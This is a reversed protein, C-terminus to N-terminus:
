HTIEAILRIRKAVGDKNIYTIRQPLNPPALSGGLKTSGLTIVGANAIEINVFRAISFLIKAGGSVTFIGTIANAVTITNNVTDINICEGLEEEVVGEKIKIIFGIKVFPFFDSNVGIVTSGSSVDLTINNSGPVYGSTDTDYGTCYSIVDGVNDPSANIHASFARVSYPFSLDHTTVVNVGPDVDFNIGHSRYYGGVGDDDDVVITHNEDIRDLETIQNADITHGNSNPCVIPVEEHYGPTEVYINETVCWVNYKAFSRSM